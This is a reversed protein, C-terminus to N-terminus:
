TRSDSLALNLNCSWWKEIAPSYIAGPCTVSWGTAWLQKESLVSVVYPWPFILQSLAELSPKGPPESTLADAELALSGHKIGPDSLDGPSSFPLGSWYEQRPFGMSLPGQRAVTWPDCLTLCLKTVLCCSPEQIGSCPRLSKMQKDIYCLSLGNM